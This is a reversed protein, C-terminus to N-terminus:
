FDTLVVAAGTDRAQQLGRALLATKAVRKPCKQIVITDGRAIASRFRKARRNRNMVYVRSLPTRRASAQPSRSRPPSAVAEGASQRLITTTLLHAGARM